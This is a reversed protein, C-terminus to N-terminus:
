CKYFKLKAVLSPARPDSQSFHLCSEMEALRTRPIQTQDANETKTPGTTDQISVDVDPPFISTNRM